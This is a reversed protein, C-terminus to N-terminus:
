EKKTFQSPNARYCFRLNVYIEYATENKEQIKSVVLGM